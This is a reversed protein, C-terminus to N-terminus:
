NGSIMNNTKLVEETKYKKNVEMKTINMENAIFRQYIIPSHPNLNTIMRLNRRTM